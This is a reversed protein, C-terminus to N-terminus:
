PTPEISIRTVAQCKVDVTQGPTKWAPPEGDGLRVFKLGCTSLHRENTPGLKHGTAYVDLKKPSEVILYGQNWNLESGDTENAVPPAAAEPPAAEPAAAEPVPAPTAAPPPPPPPAPAPPPPPPRRFSVFAAAAGGAVVGSAVLLFVWLRSSSRRKVPTAPALVPPPPPPPPPAKPEEVIPEDITSERVTVEVSPPPPEPEPPPAPPPPQPAAQAPALTRYADRWVELANGLGDTIEVGFGPPVTAAAADFFSRKWAVRGEIRIREKVRPPRLELWVKESPPPALTRVYLGGASVNYTFGLEDDDGGAARFDVVTGYLVRESARAARQDGRLLENSTFLVNEPPAGLGMVRVRELDALAAIHAELDRRQATVIWPARSGAKRSLEIHQRPDGLEANAVVVELDTQQAYFKLSLPDLAYKVDYGANALVRGFVDGRARDSDAIVAKGRNAPPRLSDEKPMARLRTMLAGGFSPPILDDAGMGYFKPALADNVESTIGLIPVRALNKKSRIKACLKDARPLATDFVVVRPDNRDLWTLAPEVADLTTLELENATATVGLVRKQEPDLRALVLLRQTHPM